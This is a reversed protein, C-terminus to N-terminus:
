SCDRKVSFLRLPRDVMAAAPTKINKAETNMCLAMVNPKAERGCHSRMMILHLGIIYLNCVQNQFQVIRKLGDVPMYLCLWYLNPM